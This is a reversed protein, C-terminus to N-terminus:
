VREWSERAERVRYSEARYLACAPANSEAVLLEHRRAGAEALARQCSRLLWRGLGRGRGRSAVGVAEVVGAGEAGLEGRAFGVPGDPDALVHLLSPRFAEGAVLAAWGAPSMPLAGPVGEFVANSMALFADVDLDAAAIPRTGAPPPGPEAAPGDLRMLLFRETLAFGRGALLAGVGPARHLSVRLGRAGACAEAWALLPLAAEPPIDPDLALRALALASWSPHDVLLAAALVREGECLALGSVGEPFAAM